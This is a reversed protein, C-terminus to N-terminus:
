KVSMKWRRFGCRWIWSCCKTGIANEDNNDQQFDKGRTDLFATKITGLVKKCSLVKYGKGTEAGNHNENGDQEHTNPRIIRQSRKMDDETMEDKM